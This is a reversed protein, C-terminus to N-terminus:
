ANRNIARTVLHTSITVWSLESVFRPFTLLENPKANSFATTFNPLTTAQGVKSRVSLKSRLAIARAWAAFEQFHITAIWPFGACPLKGM